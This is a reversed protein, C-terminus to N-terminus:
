GWIVEMLGRLIAAEDPVVAGGKRIQALASLGETTQTAPADRGDSRLLLGYGYNRSPPGATLRLDAEGCYLQATESRCHNKELVAGMESVAERIYAEWEASDRMLGRYGAGIAYINKLAGCLLVGSIDDTKDYSFKEEGFLDRIRRDTITLCITRGSQEFDEAFGPGSLAMVDQFGGFVGMGLLGKTAVIIPKDNPLKPLIEPLAASPLAILIYDAGNVVDELTAQFKAPDYYRTENGRRELVRGLASGYAGAGLVAVKM